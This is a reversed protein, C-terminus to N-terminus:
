DGSPVDPLVIDILKRIGSSSFKMAAGVGFIILVWVGMGIYISFFEKLQGHDLRPSGTVSVLLPFAFFLAMVVYFVKEGMKSRVKIGETDGSCLIPNEQAIYLVEKSVVYGFLWWKYFKGLGLMCIFDLEIDQSGFPLGIFTKAALLIYAATVGLGVYYFHDLGKAMGKLSRLALEKSKKPKMNRGGKM